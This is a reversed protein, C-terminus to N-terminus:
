ITLLVLSAQYESETLYLMSLSNSHLCQLWARHYYWLSTFKITSHFQYVHLQWGSDADKWKETSSPVVSIHIVVAVRAGGSIFSYLFPKLSFSNPFFVSDCSSLPPFSGGSRGGDLGQALGCQRPCAACSLVWSNFKFIELSPSEVVEKPLKNWPETVKLTFFNKRM